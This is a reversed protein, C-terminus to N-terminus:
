TSHAQRTLEPPEGLVGLAEAFCQRAVQSQQQALDMNRRTVKGIGFDLLGKPRLAVGLVLSALEHAYTGAEHGAAIADVARQPLAIGRAEDWASRVLPVAPLAFGRTRDGLRRMNERIEAVLARRGRSARAKETIVHHVVYGFGSGLLGLLFGLGLTEVDRSGLRGGRDRRAPWSGAVARGGNGAHSAAEPHALPRHRRPQGRAKSGAERWCRVVGGAEVPTPGLNLAEVAM